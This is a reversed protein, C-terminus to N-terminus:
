VGETFLRVGRAPGLAAYGRPIGHAEGFEDWVIPFPEGWYRQRSFLWDRLRYTVQAHGKGISELWETMAAKAEDKGLGTLSIQDNASDVAVGDGVYAEVGLDPGYPDEAPGITRIIDLDYTTAFEWDRQDHAPVAMIAGTGYGTLVYDAVFIPVRNGNVPNM